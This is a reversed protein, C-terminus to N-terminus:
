KGLFHPEKKYPNIEEYQYPIGREELVIWARQVYPCFQASLTADIHPCTQQSSEKRAGM